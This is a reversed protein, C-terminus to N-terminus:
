QLIDIDTFMNGSTTKKKIKTGGSDTYYRHYVRIFIIELILQTDISPLKGKRFLLSELATHIICAHNNKDSKQFSGWILAIRDDAGIPLM